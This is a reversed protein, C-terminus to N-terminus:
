VYVKEEQEHVTPGLAWPREFLLHEVVTLIIFYHCVESPKKNENKQQQTECSNWKRIEWCKMVKQTSNVYIIEFSWWSDFFSFFAFFIHFAKVVCKKSPMVFTSKRMKLVKLHFKTFSSSSSSFIKIFVENLALSLFFITKLSVIKEDNERVKCAQTSTHTHTKFSNM